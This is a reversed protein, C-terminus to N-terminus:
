HWAEGYKRLDAHFVAKRTDCLVHYRQSRAFECVGWHEVLEPHPSWYTAGARFIEAPVIYFTGVCKLRAIPATQAFFPPYLPTWKVDEIFGAIDYFRYQHDELLVLPAIIDCTTVRILDRIMDADYFVDADICAVHTISPDSLIHDKVLANRIGANRTVREELKTVGSDGGGRSDRFAVAEYGAAVLSALAQHQCLLSREHLAPHVNPKEPILLAIKM